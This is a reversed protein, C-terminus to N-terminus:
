ASRYAVIEAGGRRPMHEEPLAHNRSMCAHMCLCMYVHMCVSHYRRIAGGLEAILCHHHKSPTVGPVPALERFSTPFVEAGGDLSHARRGSEATRDPYGLAVRCVLTYFVDGQHRHSDGYLRRHLESAGDFSTDPAVYQDSKGVDEALYIGDGSFLPRPPSRRPLSPAQRLQTM